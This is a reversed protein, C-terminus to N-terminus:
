RLELVGAAGLPLDVLDGELVGAPEEVPVRELVRGAILGADTRQSRQGGIDVDGAHGARLPALAVLGGAEARDSRSLVCRQGGAHRAASGPLCRAVAREM